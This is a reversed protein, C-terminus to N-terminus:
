YWDWYRSFLGAQTSPRPTLFGSAELTVLLVGIARDDGAAAPYSRPYASFIVDEVLNYNSPKQDLAALDVLKVALADLGYENSNGVPLVAFAIGQHLSTQHADWFLEQNATGARSAKAYAVWAAIAKTQPPTGTRVDHMAAELDLAMAGNVSEWWSSGDSGNAIRGSHVEWYLFDLAAKGYGFPSGGASTGPYLSFFREFVEFRHDISLAAGRLARGATLYGPRNKTKHANGIRPDQAPAARIGEGSALYAPEPAANGSSLEPGPPTPISGPLTPTTPPTDSTPGPSQPPPSAPRPTVPTASIAYYGRGRTFGVKEGPHLPVDKRFTYYRTGYGQSNAADSVLEPGASTPKPQRGASKPMVPRDPSTAATPGPAPVAPHPTFCPEKVPRAGSKSPPTVTTIPDPRDVVSAPTAGPKPPDVAKPQTAATSYGGSSAADSIPEPARAPLPQTAVPKAYGGGQGHESMPQPTGAAYYGRGTTFALTQGPLLPVQAKFTYYTPV